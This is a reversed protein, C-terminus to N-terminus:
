AEEVFCGGRANKMSGTKAMPWSGSTSCTSSGEGMPTGMWGSMDTLLHIRFSAHVGSRVAHGVFSAQLVHHTWWHRVKDTPEGGRVKRSLCVLRHFDVDVTTLGTLIAAGPDVGTSRGQPLEHM